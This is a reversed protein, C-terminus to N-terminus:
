TFSITKPILAPCGDEQEFGTPQRHLSHKSSLLQAKTYSKLQRVFGPNPRACLRISQMYDITVKVYEEALTSTTKKIEGLATKPTPHHAKSAGPHRRWGELWLSLLFAGVVTTSRSRGAACHVVVSPRGRAASVRLDGEARKCHSAIESPDVPRDEDLITEEQPDSSKRLAADNANSLREGITLETGSATLVAFIIFSVVSFYQSISANENDFVPLAIRWYFLHKEKKDSSYNQSKESGQHNKFSANSGAHSAVVDCRVREMWDFFRRAIRKQSLYAGEVRNSATEKSSDDIARNASSSSPAGSTLTTPQEAADIEFLTRIQERIDSLRFSRCAYGFGGGVRHLKEVHQRINSRPVHPQNATSSGELPELRMLELQACPLLTACASVLLYLEHPRPSPTERSVDLAPLSCSAAPLPLKAEEPIERRVAEAGKPVEEGKIEKKERLSGSRLRGTSKRQSSDEMIQLTSDHPSVRRASENWIKQRLTQIPLVDRFGGLYLGTFIEHPRFSKRITFPLSPPLDYFFSDLEGDSIGGGADKKWHELFQRYEIVQPDM